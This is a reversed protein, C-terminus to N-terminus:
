VLHACEWQGWGDRKWLLWARYDQEAESADAANGTGGVSYWTSPAFQWKGDHGNPDRLHADGDYYTHHDSPGGGSECNAVRISFPDHAWQEATSSSVYRPKAVVRTTTRPTPTVHVVAAAVPKHHTPKPLPRRAFSRSIRVPLDPVPKAHPVTSPAEVASLAPSTASPHHTALTAVPISVTLVLAAALAKM